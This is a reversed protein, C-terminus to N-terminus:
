KRGPVYAPNTRRRAGVVRKNFFGRCGTKLFKGKKSAFERFKHFWRKIRQLTSEIEEHKLFAVYATFMVPSFWGVELFIFIGLHMLFGAALLPKRFNEFWVLFPFLVQLFLCFWTLAFVILPIEAIWDMNVRNFTNNRLIFNVATGDIWRQSSFKEITSVFYLAAIHLKILLVPWGAIKKIGASLSDISLAKGCPSIMLYFSLARLLTDGGNLILTNREHFSLILIFQLFKMYKTKYGLTFLVMVTIFVFYMFYVGTMSQISDFLSFRAYKSLTHVHEGPVLGEPGYYNAVEPLEYVLNILTVIGLVIRLLGLPTAYHKEEFWFKYFTELM